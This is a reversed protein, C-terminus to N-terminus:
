IEDLQMELGKNTICYTVPEQGIKNVFGETILKKMSGSVSHSSVFLGEAIDKAKFINNYKDKNDQMFSLIKRGNDTIVPLEKAKSNKLNNFYSLALEYEQEYQEAYIDLKDFIENQVIKIFAEKNTM